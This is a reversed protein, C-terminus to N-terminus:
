GRKEGLDSDYLSYEELFEKLVQIDQHEMELFQVGVLFRSELPKVWAVRSLLAVTRSTASMSEDKGSFLDELHPLDLKVKIIQGLPLKEHAILAIGGLGLDRTMGEAADQGPEDAKELSYCARIKLAYREFQRREAFTEAAHDDTDSM